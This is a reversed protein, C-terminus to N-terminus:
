GFVADGDGPVVPDPAEFARGPHPDDWLPVVLMALEASPSPPVGFIAL